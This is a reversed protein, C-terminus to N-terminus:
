KKETEWEKLLGQTGPDVFVHVVWEHYILFLFYAESQQGGKIESERM